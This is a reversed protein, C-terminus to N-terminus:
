TQYGPEGTELGHQLHRTTISAFDVAKGFLVSLRAFRIAPHNNQYGDRGTRALM